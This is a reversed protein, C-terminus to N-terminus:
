LWNPYQNALKENGWLINVGDIIVDKVSLQAWAAKTSFQKEVKPVFIAGNCPIYTLLSHDLAFDMLDTSYGSPFYINCTNLICKYWEEYMSSSTRLVTSDQIGELTVMSISALSLFEESLLKRHLALILFHRSWILRESVEFNLLRISDSINSIPHCTERGMFTKRVSDRSVIGKLPSPQLVGPTQWWNLLPNSSLCSMNLPSSPTLILEVLALELKFKPM